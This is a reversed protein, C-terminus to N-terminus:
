DRGAPLRRPTRTLGARDLREPPGVGFPALAEDPPREGGYGLAALDAQAGEAGMMTYFQTRRAELPTRAGARWIARLADYRRELQDWAAALRPDDLDGVPALEGPDAALDYWATDILVLGEPRLELWRMLKQTPTRWADVVRIAFEGSRTKRYHLLSALAPESEFAGGGLAPLLSRGVWEAPADLGAWDLVTPALDCLSVQADRQPTASGAVGDVILLPVRLQEDFLTNRHGRGGHEFFEEGHDATVIVLARDLRGARELADFIAGVHADTWGIEGRYLAVIHALDRDSIRRRPPEATADYIAPNLYFDKGTITGDYDPDFVRDWPAPPAYDYHPDFLHAFAFVDKSPHVARLGVEFRQVVNPSTVDRHSAVDRTGFLAQAKEQEGAAVLRGYERELGEGGTMANEYVEFGRPFGFDKALYWGTYYGLGVWGADALLRPWTAAAPDIRVGDHQVGHLVPPQGVFMQAHTPLTWSSGSIAQTFVTGRRAFEVLRPAAAPDRFTLADARTSDLSVLLVTRPAADQCGALASALAALLSSVWVLRCRARARRVFPASAM